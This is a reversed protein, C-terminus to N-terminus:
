PNRLEHQTVDSVTLITMEETNLVWEGRLIKGVIRSLAVVENFHIVKFERLGHGNAVLWIEAVAKADVLSLNGFGRIFKIVDVINRFLAYDM